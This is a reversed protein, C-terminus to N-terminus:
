ISSPYGSFNGGKWFHFAFVGEEQFEDLSKELLKGSPLFRRKDAM